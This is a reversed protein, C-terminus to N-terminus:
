TIFSPSVRSLRARRLPIETARSKCTLEERAGLSKMGPRTIQMGTHRLFFGVTQMVNLSVRFGSFCLNGPHNGSKRYQKKLTQVFSFALGSPMIAPNTFCNLGFQM